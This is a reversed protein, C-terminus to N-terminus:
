AEELIKTVIGTGVAFLTLLDASRGMRTSVLRTARVFLSVSASTPINVYTSFHRSKGRELKLLLMMFLLVFLSLM